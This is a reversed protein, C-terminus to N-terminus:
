MMKGPQIEKEYQIYEPLEKRAFGCKEFVRASAHNKYKVQGVIKTVHSINDTALQTQMLQLMRSGYGRGRQKSAVSYDITATGDEINLRIQGIPMEGECLIYQYINVDAIMNEFWQRHSEYPIKETHFANARVVDDNAWGFLLEMDAYEVKRLRLSM